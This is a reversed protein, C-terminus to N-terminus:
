NINRQHRIARSGLVYPALGPELGLLPDRMSWPALFLLSVVCQVIVRKVLTHPEVFRHRDGVRPKDSM